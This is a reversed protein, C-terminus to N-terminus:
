RSAPGRGHVGGGGRLVDIHVGPANTQMDGDGARTGRWQDQQDVAETAAPEVPGLQHGLQRVGRHTESGHVQATVPLRVLSGATVVQGGGGRVHTAHDATQPVHVGEDDAVTFTTQDAPGHGGVLRFPDPTQHGQRGGVWAHHGPRHQQM